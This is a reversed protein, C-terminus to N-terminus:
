ISGTGRTFDPLPDGDLSVWLHLAYPHINVWQSRPPLVLIAKTEEGLFLEKARVFEDWTPLRDRGALSFHLWRRGDDEEGVSLILSLREIRNVWALQGPFADRPQWRAPLVRPVLENVTRVSAREETSLVEPGTM